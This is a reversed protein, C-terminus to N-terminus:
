QTATLLPRIRRLGRIAHCGDGILDLYQQPQSSKLQELRDYAGSAKLQSAVEVVDGAALRATQEVRKGGETTPDYLRLSRALGLTELLHGFFKLQQIRLVQAHKPSKNILSAYAEREIEYRFLLIGLQAALRKRATPQAAQSELVSQVFHMGGCSHGYIGTKHRKADTLPSGPKFAAARDGTYDAVVQHDAELRSLAADRLAKLPAEARALNRSDLEVYAGLLWAAGHWQSADSPLPTKLAGDVLDALTVKGDATTASTKMDAGSQLMAALLHHPHAQVVEGDRKTPFTWRGDKREAFSLIVSVAPEGSSAKHDAGFAVLGHALAWPSKANSAGSKVAQALFQSTAQAEAATPPRAPPVTEPQGSPLAAGTPLTTAPATSAEPKPTRDRTAEIYVGAAAAGALVFLLGKQRENM